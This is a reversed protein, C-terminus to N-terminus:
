AEWRSMEQDYIAQEKAISEKLAPPIVLTLLERLAAANALLESAEAPTPFCGNTEQHLTEIYFALDALAQDAEAIAKPIDLLPSWYDM